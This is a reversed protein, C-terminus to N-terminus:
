DEGFMQYLFKDWVTFTGPKRSVRLQFEPALAQRFLLELLADSEEKRLGVIQHTRRQIESNLGKGWM